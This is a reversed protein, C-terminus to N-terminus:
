SSELSPTSIPGGKMPPQMQSAQRSWLNSPDGRYTAAELVELSLLFRWYKVFYDTLFLALGAPAAMLSFTVLLRRRGMKESILTALFSSPAGGAVGISLLAGIQILSFGLIDLYFALLVAGYSQAFGRVGRDLIIVKGDRSM